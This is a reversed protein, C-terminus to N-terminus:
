LIYSLSSTLLAVKKGNYYKNGQKELQM